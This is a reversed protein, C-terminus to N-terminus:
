FTGGDMTKTDTTKIYGQAKVFATTAVNTNNDATAPTPATPTGTLAPSALPAKSGILTTISTAFNPDDGLANALENLTDLTTPSSDVLASVAIDVESQTIFGTDNSLDSVRIPIDSIKPLAENESGTSIYLRKEDVNYFM